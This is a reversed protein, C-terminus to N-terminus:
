TCKRAWTTSFVIIPGPNSECFRAIERNIERGHADANSKTFVAKVGSSDIAELVNGIQSLASTTELTVPHYTVIAVTGTLEFQLHDELETKSLLKERYIHDLGPAGYNFVHEPNEGM